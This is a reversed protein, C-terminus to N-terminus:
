PFRQRDLLFEGDGSPLFAHQQGRLRRAEIGRPVHDPQDADRVVDGRAFLGLLFDPPEVGSQLLAHFLPRCLQLGGVLFQLCKGVADRVVQTCRQPRHIPEDPHELVGVAVLQIRLAVAQDAHHEALAM